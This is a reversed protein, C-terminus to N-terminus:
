APLLIQGGDIGIRKALEVGTMGLRNRRNRIREPLPSAGEAHELGEDPDRRKRMKKM